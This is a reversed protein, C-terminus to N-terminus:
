NNTLSSEVGYIWRNLVTQVRPGAGRVELAEPIIELPKTHYSREGNEDVSYHCKAVLYTEPREKGNLIEGDKTISIWEAPLKRMAIQDSTLDFPKIRVTEATKLSTIDATNVLSGDQLTVMINQRNAVLREQTQYFAVLKLYDSYAIKRETKEGRIKMLGEVITQRWGTGCKETTKVFVGDAGITGDIKALKADM